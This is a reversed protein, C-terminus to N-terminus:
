TPYNGTRGRSANVSMGCVAHAAALRFQRSGSTGILADGKLM